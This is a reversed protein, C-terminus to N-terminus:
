GGKRVPWAACTNVAQGLALATGDRADDGPRKFISKKIL